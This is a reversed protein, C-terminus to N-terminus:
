KNKKPKFITFRLALLIIVVIIAVVPLVIQKIDKEVKTTEAKNSSEEIQTEEYDYDEYVTRGTTIETGKRIGKQDKTAELEIEYNEVTQTPLVYDTNYTYGTKAYTVTTYGPTVPTPETITETKVSDADGEPLLDKDYTMVEDRVFEDINNYGVAFTWNMVEGAIGKCYARRDTNDEFFRIYGKVDNGTIVGENVTGYPYLIYMGVLGGSHVYGHDSDYGKINVRCDQIDFYGASLIGALFNEDKVEKDTDISIVTVDIDCNTIKGNGYGVVGGIGNMVASTELKDTGYILCNEIEAKDAIGALIGVMMHDSSTVEVNAGVIKLNTVKGTLNGFFGAAKTDYKKYNGDYTVTTIDTASTVKLNYLTYGNGEFEGNFNWPKWDIGSLDLDSLLAYKGTENSTVRQLEGVTRIVTYGKSEAEEKTMPKFDSTKDTYKVQKGRCRKNDSAIDKAGDINNTKNDINVKSDCVQQTRTEKNIMKSVEDPLKYIATVSVALLALTCAIAKANEKLKTQKKM